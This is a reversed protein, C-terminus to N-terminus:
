QVIKSKKYGNKMLWQLIKERNDGQIIIENNKSSGGTGCFTKLQKALSDIDDEKMVFGNVITVVKGARQKKDLKIKLIQENAPLTDEQHKEEEFNFGASTSFVIGGFNNYSKKKAM